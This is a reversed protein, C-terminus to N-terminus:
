AFQVTHLKGPLIVQFREAAYHTQRAHLDLTPWPLPCGCLGAWVSVLVCIRKCGGEGKYPTNAFMNTSARTSTHIHTGGRGGGVHVRVHVSARVSVSLPCPSSPSTWREMAEAVDNSLMTGRYCRANLLGRCSAVGLSIDNCATWPICYFFITVDTWGSFALEIPYWCCM